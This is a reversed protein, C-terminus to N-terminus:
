RADKLVVLLAVGGFFVVDASYRTLASLGVLFAILGAPRRRKWCEWVVM